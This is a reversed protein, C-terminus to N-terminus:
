VYVLVLWPQCRLVHFVSNWVAKATLLQTTRKSERRAHIVPLASQFLETRYLVGVQLIALKSRVFFIGCEAGRANRLANEAEQPRNLSGIGHSFPGDGFACALVGDVFRFGAMVFPARPKTHLQGFLAPFWYAELLNWRLRHVKVLFLIRDFGLCREPLLILHPCFFFKLHKSAPTLMNDKSPPGLRNPGHLM